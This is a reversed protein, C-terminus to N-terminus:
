KVIFRRLGPVKPLPIPQKRMMSELHMYTNPDAIRIVITEAYIVNANIWDVVSLCLSKTILQPVSYELILTKVKICCSTHSARLMETENHTDFTLTLSNKITLPNTPTPPNKIRSWYGYWSDFTSDINKWKKSVLAAIIEEPIVIDIPLYGIELNKLTDQKLLQCELTKLHNLGQIKLSTICAGDLNDLSALSTLNSTSIGLEFEQTATKLDVSAALWDVFFSSTRHMQLSKTVALPIKSSTSDLPYPTGIHQICLREIKSTSFATLLKTLKCITDEPTDSLDAAKLATTGCINVETLILDDEFKEPIDNLTINKLSINPMNHQIKIIVIPRNPRKITKLPANCKAFFEITAIRNQDAVSLPLKFGYVPDQEPIHEPTCPHASPNFSQKSAWLSFGVIASVGLVGVLLKKAMSGHQSVLPALLATIESGYIM